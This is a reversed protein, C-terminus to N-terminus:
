NRIEVRSWRGSYDCFIIHDEFLVFSQEDNNASSITVTTPLLMMVKGSLSTGVKEELMAFDVEQPELLLQVYTYGGEEVVELFGGFISVTAATGNYTAEGSKPLNTVLPLDSHITATFEKEPFDTYVNIAHQKENWMDLCGAMPYYPLYGPLNIAQDNSYYQSGNGAYRFCIQGSSGPCDYTVEVYIGERTYPLANGAGDTIAEIEYGYWLTFQYTNGQTSPTVAVTVEAELCRGIDLTMDYSLVEFSAAEEKSEVPPDQCEWYTYLGSFTGNQRSDLLVVSDREKMQLFSAFQFGGAVVLLACLIAGAKGRNELLKAALFGGTVCCWFLDLNWRYDELPLGYLFDPLWDLPKALISIYDWVGYADIYYNLVTMFEGVLPSLAITVAALIGYGTTRNPCYSVAAGILVGLIMPMMSNLLVAEMAHALLAPHGVGSLFYAAIQYAANTLALVLALGLMIALQWVRTVVGQPYYASVTEALSVQEAYGFQEYAFFLFFVFGYLGFDQVRFLYEGYSLTELLELKQVNMGHFVVLLVAYAMALIRRRWFLRLSFRLSDM